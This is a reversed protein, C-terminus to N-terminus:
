VLGSEPLDRLLSLASEEDQGDLSMAVACGIADTWRRLREVDAHTILNNQQLMGEPNIGWYNAFFVVGWLSSMLDRDLATGGRLEPVVVAVAEALDAFVAVKLGRYPRLMNLFGDEDGEILGTHVALRAKAEDYNM